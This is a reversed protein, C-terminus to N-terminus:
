IVKDETPPERQEFCKEWQLDLQQAWPDADFPKIDEDQKTQSIYTMDVFLKKFVVVVSGDFDWSSSDSSQSPLSGESELKSQLPPTIYGLGKRTRDYYNPLKGEPIFSQM